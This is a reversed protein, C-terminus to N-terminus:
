AAAILASDARASEALTAAQLMHAAHSVTEGLYASTGVTAFLRPIARIPDPETVTPRRIARDNQDRLVRKMTPGVRKDEDWSLRNKTAASRKKIWGSGM